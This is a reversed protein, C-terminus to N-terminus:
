VQDELRVPSPADTDAGQAIQRSFWDFTRKVGEEYSV